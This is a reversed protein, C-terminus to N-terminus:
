VLMPFRQQPNFTLEPILEPISVTARMEERSIKFTVSNRVISDFPTKRNLQFGQLIQPNKTLLVARKGKVATDMLQIPRLLANLTATFNYDAVLRTNLMCRNLCGTAKGRAGFESLNLRVSAFNPSTEIKKKSPGGKRRVIIHDVGQMGYASLKGLTGEFKIENTLRAM